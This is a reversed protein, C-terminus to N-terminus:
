KLIKVLVMIFGLILGITVLTGLTFPLTGLNELIDLTGFLTTIDNININIDDNIDARFTILNINVNASLNNLPITLNGKSDPISNDYTYIPLYENYNKLEVIQYIPASVSGGSKWQNVKNVNAKGFYSTTLPNIGFLSTIFINTLDDNNNSLTADGINGMGVDNTTIEITSTSTKNYNLRYPIDAQNNFYNFNANNYIYSSQQTNRTNSAFFMDSSSLYNLLNIVNNENDTFYFDIINYQINNNLFTGLIPITISKNTYELTTLQTNQYNINISNTNIALTNFRSTDNYSNFTNDSLRITTLKSQNINYNTYDKYPDVEENEKKIIQVLYDKNNTWNSININNVVIKNATTTSIQTINNIKLTYNEANDITNITITLNDNDLCPITQTQQFNSNKIEIKPYNENSGQIIVNSLYTLEGKEYTYEIAADRSMEIKTLNFSLVNTYEIETTKNLLPVNLITTAIIPLLKLKEIM